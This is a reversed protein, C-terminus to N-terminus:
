LLPLHTYRWYKRENLYIKWQVMFIPLFPLFDDWRLEELQSAGQQEKVTEEEVRRAPCSSTHIELNM